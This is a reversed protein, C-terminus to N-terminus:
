TPGPVDTRRRRKGNEKQYKLNHMTSIFICRRQYRADSKTELKLQPHYSEIPDTYYSGGPEVSQIQCAGAAPSTFPPWSILCIVKGGGRILRYPNSERFPWNTKFQLWPLNLYAIPCTKRGPPVRSCVDGTRSIKQLLLLRSGSARLSPSTLGKVPM